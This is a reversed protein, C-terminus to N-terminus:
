AAAGRLIDVLAPCDCCAEDFGPLELARHLEAYWFDLATWHDRVCRAGYCRPLWKCAVWAPVPEMSHQEAPRKGSGLDHAM